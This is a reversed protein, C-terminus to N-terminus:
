ETSVTDHLWLQLRRDSTPAIYPPEDHLIYASDVITYAVALRHPAHFTALLGRSHRPAKFILRLYTPTV